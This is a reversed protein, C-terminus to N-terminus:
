GLLDDLEADLADTSVEKTAVPEPAVIPAAVRAAVPAEEPETPAPAAVPVEAVANTEVVKSTVQKVYWDTIDEFYRKIDKKSATKFWDGDKNPADDVRLMIKEGNQRFSVGQARKKDNGVFDYPKIFVPQTLDALLLMKMIDQSYRNNTSVAVIFAEGNANVTVNVSEGYQQHTKFEVKTILGTLDAYRAGAREGVTGDARNFEQTAYNADEKGKKKDWIFGGAIGLFTSKTGQNVTGLGSM